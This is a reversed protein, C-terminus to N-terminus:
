KALKLAVFRTDTGDGAKSVLILVSTKGDATAQAVAAAVDSAATVPKGGAEQIVDGVTIGKNAADITSQATQLNTLLGKLTSSRSTLNAALFYAAPDDIPSNVRKGSALRTQVASIQDKINSLALVGSRAAASIAVGNGDSMQDGM